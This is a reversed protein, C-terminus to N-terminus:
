ELNKDIWKMLEKMLEEKSYFRPSFLGDRGGILFFGYFNGEAPDRYERICVEVQQKVNGSITQEVIDSFNQYKKKHLTMTKFKEWLWRIVDSYGPGEIGEKKMEEKVNQLLQYANEDIRISKM